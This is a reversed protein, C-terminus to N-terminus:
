RNLYNPLDSIQFFLRLGCGLAVTEELKCGQSKRWDGQLLIGDCDLLLRIDRRMYESHTLTLLREENGEEVIPAMPNVAEHGKKVIEGSVRAFFSQREEHDYGTIPASIYIKM